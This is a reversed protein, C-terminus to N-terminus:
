LAARVASTLRATGLLGLLLWVSLTVTMVAPTLSPSVADCVGGLVFALTVLVVRTPAEAVTVAGVGVMGAVVARSRAYEYFWALGGALAVVLGAAGVLWLALLWLAENARDAISDLFSGLRTSRSTIMAVAGDVSDALAALVVLGAALYLWPGRAVAVVPVLVSVFVGLGTLTNPRVGASALLRGGAYAVRLWGRVLASTQYPTLRGHLTSWMAVFEDRSLRDGNGM